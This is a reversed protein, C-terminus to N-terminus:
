DFEPLDTLDDKGLIPAQGRHSHPPQVPYPFANPPEAGGLVAGRPLPASPEGPRAAPPQAPTAGASGGAPPEPAAGSSAPGGSVGPINPVGGRATNVHVKEYPGGPPNLDLTLGNDGTRLGIITGDRLVREAGKYTSPPVREPAGDTAWNWLRRLDDDSRIEAFNPRSGRPLDKIADRVDQGTHGPVPAPTPGGRKWDVLQVGNHETGGDRDVGSRLAEDTFTPNGVDGAAAALQGSVEDELGVLRAVRHRIDAAFVQAQSQRVAREAAPNSSRTDSVSFDEGVLFGASHADEVKYLLSQKVTSIDSAGRRAIQAAERLREAQLMMVSKDATTRARLADAADGDWDITHAQQWIEIAANDWRDATADLHNAGEILHEVDWTRIQSLTPVTTTLV